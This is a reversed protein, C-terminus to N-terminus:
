YKNDKAIIDNFGTGIWWVRPCKKQSVQYSCLGQELQVWTFWHLEFKAWAFLFLFQMHLGKSWQYAHKKTSGLRLASALCSHTPHSSHTSSHWPYRKMMMEELKEEWSWARCVCGMSVYVFIHEFMDVFVFITGNTGQIYSVFWSNTTTATAAKSQAM